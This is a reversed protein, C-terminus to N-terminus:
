AYAVSLSKILSRLVTIASDKKTAVLPLYTGEVSLIDKIENVSLAGPLDQKNCGIVFPINDKYFYDIFNAGNKINEINTSDVLLIFGSKNKDLVDWMFKFREQGPTGFLHIAKGELFLKGYDMAVTTESKKEAEKIDTIRKETSFTDSTLTKIFQTKGSSFDGTVLVKVTEM